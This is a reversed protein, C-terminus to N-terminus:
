RHNKFTHDIDQVWRKLTEQKETMDMSEKDTAAYFREWLDVWWMTAMAKERPYVHAAGAFNQAQAAGSISRLPIIHLRM